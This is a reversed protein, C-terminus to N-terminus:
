QVAIVELSVGSDAPNRTQIVTLAPMEGPLAESLVSRLEDLNGMSNLYATIRVVNSTDMLALRLASAQTELADLVQDRFTEGRGPMASTYVVGGSLSAPSAIATPPQDHMFLRTVYNDDVAVFTIEVAIDGPLRSLAVNARSPAGGPDFRNEYASDVAESSSSPPLYSSALVTNDYTLGAAALITGITQLTQDAQEEASEAIEGTSPNRGGQGSLYVTRGARVAPSYPGMAPPIESAPPRVVEFSSALVTNDYTLGAAALITGITQLTQDAQEEASEAIEGTSPNRGGQGSLYVTRGARVAPSYPGMAPPIESAPPRVVEIEASDEYAVCMLLIGAGGPMGPVELTTRAPYGGEAFYSGYVSNMDAYNEMDSLHVHCSVVHSYDLDTMSLIEGLRDMASTTQDAISADADSPQVASLYFTKGVLVALTRGNEDRITDREITARASDGV